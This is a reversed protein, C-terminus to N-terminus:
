KRAARIAEAIAHAQAVNGPLQTPTIGFALRISQKGFPVVLVTRDPTSSEVELKGLESRPLSHVPDGVHWYPEGVEPIRRAATAVLLRTPTLALVHGADIEHRSGSFIGAAEATARWSLPADLGYALHVLDEGSLLRTLEIRLESEGPVM